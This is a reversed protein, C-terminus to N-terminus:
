PPVIKVEVPYDVLREVLIRLKKPSIDKNISFIIESINNKLIFEETLIRRSFVDIGNIQKGVKKNDNDIYGLVRIKNQTNQTLANHTLIGSEGAGYIIVNKHFKIDKK